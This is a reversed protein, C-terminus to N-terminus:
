RVIGSGNDAEAADRGSRDRKRWATPPMRYRAKFRRVFYGLNSFGCDLAIDTVRADTADLLLAAQRLRYDVLYGIASQGLVQRFLRSFHSESLNALRALEALSLDSPYQQQIRQLPAKIRDIRDRQGTDQVPRAVQLRSRELIDALLLCLRGRMALNREPGEDRLGLDLVSRLTALFGAHAPDDPRWLRPLRRDGRLLAAVLDHTPDDQRVPLWLEPHFVVLQLRGTGEGLFRAAHLEGSNVVVAGGPPLCSPEGDLTVDFPGNVALLIEIEDHWHPHFLWGPNSLALVSCPFSPNDYWRRELLQLKEV